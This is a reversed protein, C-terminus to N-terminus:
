LYGIVDKQEHFDYCFLAMPKPASMDQFVICKLKSLSTQTKDTDQTMLLAGKIRLFTRNPTIVSRM